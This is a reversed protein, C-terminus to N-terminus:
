QTWLPRHSRVIWFPPPIKNVIPDIRELGKCNYKNIIWLFIFVSVTYDGKFYCKALKLNRTIEKSWLSGNKFNEGLTDTVEIIDEFAKTGEASLYDLGQLSKRTSASCVNLIRYQTYQSEFTFQIGNWNLLQPITKRDARSHIYTYRQSNKNWIWVVIETKKEGFPLDQIISSSMMFTLFHDLKWSIGM